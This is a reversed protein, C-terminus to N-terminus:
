NDTKNFVQNQKILIFAFSGLIAVSPEWFPL